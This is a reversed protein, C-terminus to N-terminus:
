RLIEENLQHFSEISIFEYIHLNISPLTFLSILPQNKGKLLFVHYINIAISRIFFNIIAILYFLFTIVVKMKHQQTIIPKEEVTEGVHDKM